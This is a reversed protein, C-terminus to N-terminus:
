TLISPATWVTLGNRWALAEEVTKCDPHVGEIHILDVSPNKMKLYPRFRGDGLDLNLLEYGNKKDITKAGLEKVVREAGMKKVLEARVQANKEELVWKGPIDKAPTEAIKKSCRTGNLAWVSFGDRYAVAPGGDQHLRGNRMNVESPRETLIVIDEFPWFWGSHEVLTMLPVLKDTEQVLGCENRFFDYFSLFDADHAGYGASWVQDKIQTTSTQKSSAVEFTYAGDLQAITQEEAARVAASGKAARNGTALMNAAVTGAFPSDLWVFTTPPKLGGVEYAASVAAQAKGRDAVATSLGIKIWKERYHAMKDEQAKTLKTIKM